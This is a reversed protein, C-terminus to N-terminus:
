PRAIENRRRLEGAPEQGRTRRLSSPEVAVATYEGEKLAPASAVPGWKGRKSRPKPRPWRAARDSNPGKFVEVTVPETESATGSFSPTTDSTPSTPGKISVTPPKTSVSFHVEATGELPDLLQEAVATYEGSRRASEHGHPELQRRRRCNSRAWRRRKRAPPRRAKTIVVSVPALSDETTGASADAAPRDHSRRGTEDISIAAAATAVPVVVLALAAGLTLAVIRLLGRRAIWRSKSQM